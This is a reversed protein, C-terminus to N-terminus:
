SRLLPLATFSPFIPKQIVLLSFLPKYNPMVVEYMDNEVGLVSDAEGALVVEVEAEDM